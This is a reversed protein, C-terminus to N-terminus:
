ITKISYLGQLTFRKCRDILLYEFDNPCYISFYENCHRWLSSSPRLDGADGNNAWGNIQAGILSLMLAGRWQGKHPSNVPTQHIGRVFPCYASFTEMQHRWWTAWKVMPKRLAMYCTIHGSKYSHVSWQHKCLCKLLMDWKRSFCM